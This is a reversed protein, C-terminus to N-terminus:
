TEQAENQQVLVEPKITKKFNTFNPAMIEESIREPGAWQNKKGGLPVRTLQMNPHKPHGTRPERLSRQPTKRM